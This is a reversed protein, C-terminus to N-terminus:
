YAVVFTKIHQRRTYYVPTLDIVCSAATFLIYMSHKSLKM